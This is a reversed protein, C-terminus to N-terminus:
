RGAGSRGTDSRVNHEADVIVKGKERVRGSFRRGNAPNTLVVTEGQKGATEARAQFRLQAAGSVVEVDVTEGRAVDARAAAPLKVRAWIPMSRNASYRVRGRCLVPKDGAAPPLLFEIDGAPVPFRSFDLLEIEGAQEGFAALVRERTLPETRVEFCTAPGPTNRM